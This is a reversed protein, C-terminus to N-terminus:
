TSVWSRFCGSSWRSIKGTMKTDTFHLAFQLSGLVSSRRTSSLLLSCPMEQSLPRMSTSVTIWLTSTGKKGERDLNERAPRAATRHASNGSAATCPLGDTQCSIGHCSSGSSEDELVPVASGEPYHNDVGAYVTQHWGSYRRMLCLFVTSKGCVLYFDSRIQFFFFSFFATVSKDIKKAM